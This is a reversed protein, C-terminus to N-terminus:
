TTAVIVLVGEDVQFATIRLRPHGVAILVNRVLRSACSQARRVSSSMTRPTYMSRAFASRSSNRSASLRYRRSTEIVLFGDVAFASCDLALATSAASPLYLRAAM